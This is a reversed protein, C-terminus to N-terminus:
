MRGVDGPGYGWLPRMNRGLSTVPNSGIIVPMGRYTDKSAQAQGRLKLSLAEFQAGAAPNTKEMNIAKLMNLIALESDIPVVDYDDVYPVFKLKVQALLTVCNQRGELHPTVRSEQHDLGNALRYRRFSPVRLSPHYKGLFFMQNTSPYVAYLSFYGTMGGEPLIVRGVNRFSQTSCHSGWNGSVQGEVGGDWRSLPVDERVEENNVGYGQLRITKSVDSNSTCFAAIHYGEKDLPVDFMTAHEGMDALANTRTLMGCSQWGDLDGPGGTVVQYETGFIQSPHGNISVGLIAEVNYPMPFVTDVVAMRMLSDLSKWQESQMIRQIALNLGRAQAVPDCQGDDIHPALNTKLDKFLQM